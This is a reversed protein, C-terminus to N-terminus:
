GRARRRAWWAIASMALAAAFAAIGARIVAGPEDAKTAFQTPGIGSLRVTGGVGSVPASVTFSMGALCAQMPLTPFLPICPNPNANYGAARPPWQYITPGTLHIATNNQLAITPSPSAPVTAVIYVDFYTSAPFEYYSLSGTNRGSSTQSGSEAVSVPGTVSNGTLNLATIETDVVLVGGSLYPDGWQITATGSLTITEQGLRSSVNVSGTAPLVASEAHVDGPQLVLLGLLALAFTAAVLRLSSGLQSV